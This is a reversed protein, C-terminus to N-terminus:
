NWFNYYNFWQEPYLKVKQELDDKFLDSLRESFQTKTETETKKLLQSGFFHYHLASEKMAFVVSVPVNFGAALQFPGAPFSAQAGL